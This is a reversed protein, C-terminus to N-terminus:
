FSSPEADRGSQEKGGPFFVTGMACPATLSEPGTQVPASFRAEVPIRDGSRGPWLWDSYRGLKRESNGVLIRNVGRREGMGAVYGVLKIIIGSEAV